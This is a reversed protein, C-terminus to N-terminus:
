ASIGSTETDYDLVLREEMTRDLVAVVRQHVEHIMYAQLSERDAFHIVAAYKYGKGRGSFDQGWTLDRVGPVDRLSAIAGELEAREEASGDTRPRCLLLHVIM